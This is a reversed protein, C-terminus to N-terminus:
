GSGLVLGDHALAMSDPVEATTAEHPLDHAMHVFYTRGAEVQHAVSVAQGLTFHTPHKRRRLADLVLTELGELLPWSEPPIASVDTCYALPWWRDVGAAEASAPDM